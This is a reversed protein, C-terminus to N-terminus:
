FVDVEGTKACSIVAPGTLSILHASSLGSNAGHAPSLGNAEINYINSPYVFSKSHAQLHDAPGELNIPQSLYPTLLKFNQIPRLLPHVAIRLAPPFDTKMVVNEGVYQVNRNMLNDLTAPLLYQPLRRKSM